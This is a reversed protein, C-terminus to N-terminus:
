PFDLHVGLPSRQQVSAQENQRTGRNATRARPRHRRDPGTDFRRREVGRAPDIARRGICRRQSAFYDNNFHPGVPTRRALPYSRFEDLRIVLEFIPINLKDPKNRSAIVLKRLRLREDISKLNWPGVSIPGIRCYL